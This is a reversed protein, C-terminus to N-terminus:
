SPWHMSQYKIAKRTGLSQTINGTRIYFIVGQEELYAPEASPDVELICVQKEESKEYRAKIYGIYEEGIKSSILSMLKQEFGDIDKGKCMKLDRGM